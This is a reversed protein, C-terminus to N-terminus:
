DFPIKLLCIEQIGSIGINIDDYLFYNSSRYMIEM